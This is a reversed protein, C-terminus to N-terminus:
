KTPSIRERRSSRTSSSGSTFVRLPSSRSRCSTCRSNDVLFGCHDKGEAVRRPPYVQHSFTTMFAHGDLFTRLGHPYSKRGVGTAGNTRGTVAIALNRGCSSPGQPCSTSAPPRAPGGHACHRLLSGLAHAQGPLRGPPLSAAERSVPRVAA